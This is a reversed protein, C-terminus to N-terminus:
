RKLHLAKRVEVDILTQLKDLEVHLSNVDPKKSEVAESLPIGIAAAKKNVIAIQELIAEALQQTGYRADAVYLLQNIGVGLEKSGDMGAFIKAIGRIEAILM